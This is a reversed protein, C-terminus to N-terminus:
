WSDGLNRFVRFGCFFIVNKNNQSTVDIYVHLRLVSTVSGYSGCLAIGFLVSPHLAWSYPVITLSDHFM